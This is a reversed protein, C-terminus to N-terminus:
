ISIQVFLNIFKINIVNNDVYIGLHVVNEVFEIDFENILLKPM